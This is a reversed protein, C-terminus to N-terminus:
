LKRETLANQHKGSQTIVIRETTERKREKKEKKKKKEEKNKRWEKDTNNMGEIGFEM